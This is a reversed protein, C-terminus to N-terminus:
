AQLDRQTKYKDDQILRPVYKQDRSKIEVLYLENEADYSSYEDEALTLKGMVDEHLDNLCNVIETEEM